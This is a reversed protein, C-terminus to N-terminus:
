LGKGLNPFAKTKQKQKPPNKKGMVPDMYGLSAESESHITLQNPIGSKGAEVEWPSFHSTHDV